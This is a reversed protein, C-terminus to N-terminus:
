TYGNVKLIKQVNQAMVPLILHHGDWLSVAKWNADARTRPHRPRQPVFQTDLALDRIAVHRDNLSALWPVPLVPRPGPERNGSQPVRAVM